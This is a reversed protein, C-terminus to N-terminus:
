KAAGVDWTNLEPTFWAEIFNQASQGSRARKNKPTSLGRLNAMDPALLAGMVICLDLTTQIGVKSNQLATLPPYLNDMGEASVQVTGIHIFQMLAALERLSNWVDEVQAFENKGQDNSKIRGTMDTIVMYPKHAEIVRAVQAVTMGHIDVMRIADMRGVIKKYADELTGNRAMELTEDRTKGVATQYVRPVLSAATGENVLYLLPQDPYKDKAQEAFSIALKILFSTKGKDTPAVIAYNDGLVCGRLRMRLPELINWQLGADDQDAEMYDLVSGDAWKAGSTTDMRQRYQTSLNLLEFTIDIDDGDQYKALLAGAKGSFSLEELQNTTNRLVDEQVPENLRSVITNVIALNDKDLNARLKILSLLAETDLKEHDPYSKFYVDYWDLLSNTSADMMESPVAGRLAKFRDRKMLAQLLVRDLM